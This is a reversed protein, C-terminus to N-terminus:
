RPVEVLRSLDGAERLFGVSKAADVFSKLPDLDIEATFKLRKWSRQLTDQPLVRTTEEKLEENVLKQAEDPHETIWKTLEAHAAVFKKAIESRQKLFDVSAVLVATITDPEELFVKGGAELELRTVWPEVTWVADLDKASFLTLQDPNSTPIVSVDGGLQTVRFGHAILYARCAIDQTNGLQPTAVRKGRFDEPKQIRGDPQVVLAAGGVAAGAVVRIEEGHSKVYANIAPSPGVYTLDIADAFIAEMASPGANYVSWEIKVDGGLREEFWGKGRRSMAHAVIAQAHTVNPFHGVRLVKSDSPKVAINGAPGERPDCGAACVVLACALICSSVLSPMRYPRM